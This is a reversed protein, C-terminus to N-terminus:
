YNFGKVNFIAEIEAKNNAPGLLTVVDPDRLNIARLVQAGNPDESKIVGYVNRLWEGSPDATNAYAALARWKPGTDANSHQHPDIIDVMLGDQTNHFFLFDPQLLGPEGGQEYQISLANKGSSPNRYWGVLTPSKSPDLTQDLLDKEWSSGHKVPYLGDASTSYVHRDFMPLDVIIEEGHQDKAVTGTAARPKTPQQITETAFTTGAPSWLAVIEALRDAALGNALSTYANKWDEIQQTAAREVATIVDPMKSMAVTRAKAEFFDLDDQKTLHEVYQKAVDEPLAAAAKKFAKDMDVPKLRVQHTSGHVTQLYEKGKDTFRDTAVDLLMADETADDILKKKSPTTYETVMAQVLRASLDTKAPLNFPERALQAALAVARSTATKHKPAKRHSSPITWLLSAVQAPIKPNLILPVSFVKLGGTADADAKVATIVKAVEARDYLPLSLFVSNLENDGDEIRQAQPTRVMRGILQAITTPDASGRLSVMVEARPCDWGTTLATKFLVVRVQDDEQIADPALYRVTRQNAGTGVTIASHSDFAHCVAAGKLVDWESELTNLILAIDPNSIGPKVQVVMVPDIKPLGNTSHTEDYYTAWRDTVEKFKKVSEALLTQDAEQDETPRPIDIDDKLLGSARVKEIDAVVKKSDRPTENAEGARKMSTEFKEVTASIGLVVPIPPQTGGVTRPGGHILTAAITKNEASTAAEQGLGRHAEDVILLMNSAGDEVTNAVMDWVGYTRSDNTSVVGSKNVIRHHLSTSGKGFQQNHAFYVLGPALVRQDYDALSVLRRHNLAPRALEIKTKSQENLAPQDSLWVIVLNPIPGEQNADEPGDGDLLREILAAAIVTKGAATPAVLGVATLTGDDQHDEFARRVSRTLKDVTEQQYDRLIFM